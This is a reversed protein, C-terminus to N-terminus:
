ECVGNQESWKCIKNTHYREPAGPQHLQMLKREKTSGMGGILCVEMKYATSQAAM